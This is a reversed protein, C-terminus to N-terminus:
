TTELILGKGVPHMPLLHVGEGLVLYAPQFDYKAQWSIFFMISWILFLGEMAAPNTKKKPPPSDEWHQM